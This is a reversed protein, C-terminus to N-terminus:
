NKRQNTISTEQSSKKIFGTFSFDKLSKVRICKYMLKMVEKRFIKNVLIYVFFQICSHVHRFYVLAYFAFYLKDNMFISADKITFTYSTNEQFMMLFCVPIYFIMFLINLSAMITGFKIEKKMGNARANAQRKSRMLNFVTLSNSITM